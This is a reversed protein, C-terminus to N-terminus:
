PNKRPRGRRSNPAKGLGIKHALDRRKAAYDPAVMPYDKALNWRQRYQEIGLDHDTAIHRKLMKMKRGCELCTISEPKVSSRISVAPERIEEVVQAEAGLASLAGHINRILGAVKDLPVNNNSVHAAVIDSTLTLLTEARTAEETM